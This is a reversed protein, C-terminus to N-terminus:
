AVAKNIRMAVEGDSATDKSAYLSDHCPKLMASLSSHEHSDDMTIRAKLGSHKGSPERYLYV